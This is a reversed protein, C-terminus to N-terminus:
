KQTLYQTPPMFDGNGITEKALAFLADKQFSKQVPRGIRPSPLKQDMGPLRCTKQSTGKESAKGIASRNTANCYTDSVMMFKVAAPRNPIQVRNGKWQKIPGIFAFRNRPAFNYEKNKNWLTKWFFSKYWVRELNNIKECQTLNIPQPTWENRVGSYFGTQRFNGTESTQPGRM